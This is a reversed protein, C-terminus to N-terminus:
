RPPREQAAAGRRWLRFMLLAIGVLLWADAINSVYPWLATDGGPWALGLPLKATPLPHLFDRVCAFRLRDYLNGAGGAVILGLACHSLSERRETWLAFILVAFVLAALTFVIFFWRMGQGAGFVAGANLVLHLNLVGPIVVLPEHTPILSHLAGPALAQVTARDVAVPVGAIRDFALSKSMLDSALGILITTLLVAWPARSGGSCQFTPEAGAVTSNPLPAAGPPSSASGSQTPTENV